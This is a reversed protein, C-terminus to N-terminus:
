TSSVQGIQHDHAPGLGKNPRVVARLEDRDRQSFLDGGDIGSRSYRARRDTLVAVALKLPLAASEPPLRGPIRSSRAWWDSKIESPTGLHLRGGNRSSTASYTADRSTRM